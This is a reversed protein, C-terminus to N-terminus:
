RPRRRRRGLTCACCFCSPLDAANLTFCPWALWTCCTCAATAAEGFLLKCAGLVEPLRCLLRLRLISKGLVACGASVGARLQHLGEYLQGWGVSSVGPPPRVGMIARDVQASVLATAFRMLYAGVKAVRRAVLLPHQRFYAEAAAHCSLTPPNCPTPQLVGALSACWCALRPAQRDSLISWLLQRVPPCGQMGPLLGVWAM